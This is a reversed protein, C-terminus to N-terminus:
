LMALEGHIFYWPKQKINLRFTM